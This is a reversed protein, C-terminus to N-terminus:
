STIVQGRVASIAAAGSKGSAVENQLGPWPECDGRKQVDYSKGPGEDAMDVSSSVESCTEYM